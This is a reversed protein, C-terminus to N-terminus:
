RDERRMDEAWMDMRQMAEAWMDARQMDMDTRDRPLLMLGHHIGMDARERGASMRTHGSERGSQSVWM